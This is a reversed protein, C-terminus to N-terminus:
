CVEGFNWDHDILPAILRRVETVLAPDPPTLAADISQALRVPSSSTTLTTPIDPHAVAFSVALAELTTGAARCCDVAQAVVARQEATAPHWPAPGRATLLGLALPSSNVVGIGRRACTPLLELLQTDNLAYHSHTMIVDLDCEQVVRRWLAMPYTALGIFRVVGQRKLERLTDLGEGLAQPVHRQGHYEIDHLFLLDLHDTGLRRLSDEVSALLRPRSYNFEDGGYGGPPTFKGAKTSLLYRDRPIGRLAKGLVTEAVTGGYAPSVDFYDVGREVALHVAQIGAAEDLTGYVGGLSSAGYSLIPVTLGTRGLPRRPMVQRGTTTTASMATSSM